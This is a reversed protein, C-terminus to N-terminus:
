NQLLYWSTSLFLYIRKNQPLINQLYSNFGNPEYRRNIESDRNLKRKWSIDMSSLSINLDGVIITHPGIHTRLKLLM